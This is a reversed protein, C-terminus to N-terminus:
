WRGVVCLGAAAPRIGEERSAFSQRIAAPLASGDAFLSYATCLVEATVTDDLDWLGGVATSAGAVLCGMVAVIATSSELSRASWCSGLSVIPPLPLELLSLLPVKEAGFDFTFQFGEGRTGHATVALLDYRESLLTLRLEDFSAADHFTVRGADHLRTLEQRERNAGNLTPNLLGIIRRRSAYQELPILRMASAISPVAAFTPVYDPILRLWPLEWCTQDPVVYLGAGVAAETLDGFLQDALWQLDNDPVSESGRGIARRFMPDQSEPVATRRVRATASDALLTIVTLFSYDSDHTANAWVVSAGPLSAHIAAIDVIDPDRQLADVTSLDALAGAATRLSAFRHDLAVGLRVDGAFDLAQMAIETNPHRQQLEVAKDCLDPLMLDPDLLPKAKTIHDETLRHLAALLQPATELQDSKLKAHDSIMRFLGAQDPTEAHNVLQEYYRAANPLDGAEAAQAALATLSKSPQDNSNVFRGLREVHAAAPDSRAVTAFEAVYRSRLLDHRAIDGTGKAWQAAYFTRIASYGTSISELANYRDLVRGQLPILGNDHAAKAAARLMEPETAIGGGSALQAMLARIVASVATSNAQFIDNSDLTRYLVQLNRGSFYPMAERFQDAVEEALDIRGLRSRYVDVLLGALTAHTAATVTDRANTACQEAILERAYQAHSGFLKKGELTDFVRAAIRLQEVTDADCQQLPLVSADGRVRRFFTV